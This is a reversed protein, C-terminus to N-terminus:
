IASIPIHYGAADLERLLQVQAEVPDDKFPIYMLGQIDSPKEMSHSEKMLIAVRARGLLSLVMGLELVVNQRVRYAIEDSRSARHGQDDPTALVIAYGGQGTYKELKEIITQGESPLQDLFLPELGWRRLLAELKAKANQDHGYVVFIENSAHASPVKGLGSAANGLLEKVRAIHKGQVNYSGNDFVNAIAGNGLRIQTGSDNKLRNESKIIFGGDTLVKKATSLDM